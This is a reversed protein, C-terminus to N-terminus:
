SAPNRSTLAAISAPAIPSGRSAWATCRLGETGSVKTPSIDSVSERTWSNSVNRQSNPCSIVAVVTTRTRCLGTPACCPSRSGCITSSSSAFPATTSASDKTLQWYPYSTRHSTTPELPVTVRSLGRVM